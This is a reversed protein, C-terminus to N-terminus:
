IDHFSQEFLIRLKDGYRIEIQAGGL